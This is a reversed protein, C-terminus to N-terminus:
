QFVGLWAVRSAFACRVHIILLFAQVVLMVMDAMVLISLVIFLFFITFVITDLISKVFIAIVILVARSSPSKLSSRETSYTLPFVLSFRVLALPEVRSSMERPITCCLNSAPHSRFLCLRFNWLDEVHPLDDELGLVTVELVGQEPPKSRTLWQPELVLFDMDGLALMFWWSSDYSTRVIALCPLLFM